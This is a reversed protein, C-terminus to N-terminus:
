EREKKNKEPNVLLDLLAEEVNGHRFAFGLEQLRKPTLYSGDLVLISMEGLVLRMAFAPAPLWYPRRMTEAAVRIFEASSIPDPATLNFAGHAGKNELLFRIAAVEDDLHIWPLGQKGNGLPGGAFLKVPFLMIPLIGDQASLVIASRIIVRRVGMKEVPETSVEWAKCLESLFDNGPGEAETIPTLDRPGYYNVGSAQIFVKPAKSAAQIAEVLAKGGKVRSDWFRQKQNKTWPWRSLREGVLNIVADVHNVVDGCGASTCGDWEIANAGDPLRADKPKRTLVWVQHGDALMSKTLATGIMGTGGSILVDM